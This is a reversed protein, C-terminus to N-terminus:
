SLLEALVTLSPPITAYHPSHYSFGEMSDLYYRVQPARRATEHLSEDDDIM